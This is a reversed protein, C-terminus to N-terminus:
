GVSFEIANGFGVIREESYGHEGGLSEIKGFGVIKEPNYGDTEM